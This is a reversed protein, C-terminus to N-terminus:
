LLLHSNGNDIVELEDEDWPKCQDREKILKQKFKDNLTDEKEKLYKRKSSHERSLISNPLIGMDEVIEKLDADTYGEEAVIDLTKSYTVSITVNVLVKKRPKENYPARPDNEAGM